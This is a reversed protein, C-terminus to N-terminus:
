APARARRRARPQDHRRVPLRLDRRHLHRDIPKDPDDTSPIPTIEVTQETATASSARADVPRASRGRRRAGRQLETVGDIPDGDVTLMQDGAKSCATPRSLRRHRAGVTVTSTYAIDLEGLAAAVAEQQSDVMDAASQENSQQDTQGAPYVADLPVIPAADPRVLRDRPRDLQAPEATIGRAYVTLM